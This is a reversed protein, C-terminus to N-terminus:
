FHFSELVLFPNIEAAHIRTLTVIALAGFITNFWRVWIALHDFGSLFYFFTGILDVAKYILILGSKDIGHGSRHISKISPHLCKTSILSQAFGFVKVLEDSFFSAKESCTIAKLVVVWHTDNFIFSIWSNFLGTWSKLCAVIVFILIPISKGTIFTSILL